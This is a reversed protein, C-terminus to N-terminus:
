ETGGVSWSALCAREQRLAKVAAASGEDQFTGLGSTAEEM